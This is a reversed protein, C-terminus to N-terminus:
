EEPTNDDWEVDGCPRNHLATPSDEKWDVSWARADESGETLGCVPCLVIVQGDVINVPHPGTGCKKCGYEGEAHFYDDPEWDM